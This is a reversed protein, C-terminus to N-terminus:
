LVENLTGEDSSLGKFEAYATRFMEALTHLEEPLLDIPGYITHLTYLGESVKKTVEFGQM